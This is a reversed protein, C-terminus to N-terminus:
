GAEPLDQIKRRVYELDRQWQANVPDMAALRERLGLETRL